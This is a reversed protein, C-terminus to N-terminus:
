KGKQGERPRSTLSNPPFQLASTAASPGPCAARERAICGGRAPTQATRGRSAPGPLSAESPSHPRWRPALAERAPRRLTGRPSGAARGGAWSRNQSKPCDWASLPPQQSRSVPQCPRAGAGGRFAARDSSPPPPSRPHREGPPRPRPTRPADRGWGPHAAAEAARTGGCRAGTECANELPLLRALQPTAPPLLGPCADARLTAERARVRTGAPAGHRVVETTGAAQGPRRGVSGAEAGGREGRGRRGRPGLGAGCPERQPLCQGERWPPLASPGPRAARGHQLGRFPLRVLFIVM